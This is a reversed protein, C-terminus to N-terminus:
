HRSGARIAFENWHRQAELTAELHTVEKSFQITFYRLPYVVAVHWCKANTVTTEWSPLEGTEFEACKRLVHNQYVPKRNSTVNCRHRNGSYHRCDTCRNLDTM